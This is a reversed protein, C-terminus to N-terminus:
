RSCVEFLHRCFYLSKFMGLYCVCYTGLHTMMQYVEGPALLSFGNKLADKGSFDM